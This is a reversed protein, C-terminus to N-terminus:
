GKWAHGGRRPHPLVGDDYWQIRRMSTFLLLASMHNLVGAEAERRSRFPQNYISATRLPIATITKRGGTKEKRKGRQIFHCIGRQFTIVDSISNSAVITMRHHWRSGIIPISVGTHAWVRLLGCPGPDRRGQRLCKRLCIISRKPNMM